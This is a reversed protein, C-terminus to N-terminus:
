KLRLLFPKGNTSSNRAYKKGRAEVCKKKPWQLHVSNNVIMEFAAFAVWKLTFEIEIWLFNLLLKCECRYYCVPHSNLYNIMWCEIFHSQMSHCWWENVLLTNTSIHNACLSVDSVCLERENMQKPKIKGNENLVIRRDISDIYCSDHM